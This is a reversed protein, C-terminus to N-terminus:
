CVFFPDALRLLMVNRKTRRGAIELYFTWHYKPLLLKFM